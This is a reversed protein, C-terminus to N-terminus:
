FPFDCRWSAYPGFAIATGALGPEIGYCRTSQPRDPPIVTAKVLFQSTSSGFVEHVWARTVDDLTISALANESARARIAAVIVADSPRGHWGLGVGGLVLGLATLSLRRALTYHRGDGMAPM